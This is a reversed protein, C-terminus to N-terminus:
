IIGSAIAGMYRASYRLAPENMALRWGLFAGRCPEFIRALTNM